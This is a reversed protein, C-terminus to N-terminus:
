PFILVESDIPLEDHLARVASVAFSLLVFPTEVKDKIDDM